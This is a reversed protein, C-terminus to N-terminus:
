TGLPTNVNDPEFRGCAIDGPLFYVSVFVVSVMNVGGGAAVYSATRPSNRHPERLLLHGYEILAFTGHNCLM